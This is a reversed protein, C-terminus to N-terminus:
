TRLDDDPQELRIAYTERTHFECTDTPVSTYPGCTIGSHWGSSLYSDRKLHVTSFMSESGTHWAVRFLALLSARKRPAFPSM